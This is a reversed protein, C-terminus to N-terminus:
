SFAVIVSGGLLLLVTAGLAVFGWEKAAIEDAVAVLLHAVPTIMLIALGAALLVDAARSPSAVLAVAVGAALLATSAATGARLVVEMARTNPHPAPQIV